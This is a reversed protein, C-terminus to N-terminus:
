LEDSFLLFDGPTNSRDIKPRGTREGEEIQTIPHDIIIVVTSKVYVEKKTGIEIAKSLIVGPEEHVQNVIVSQTPV